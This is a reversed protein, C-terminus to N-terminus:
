TAFIGSELLAARLAPTDELELGVVGLHRVESRDRDLLVVLTWRAGIVERAVSCYRDLLEVPDRERALDTSLEILATLKGHADRLEEAKESLKNTLLQLHERDFDEPETVALPEPKVRGSLAAAVIDLVVKPECPK